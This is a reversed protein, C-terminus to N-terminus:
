LNAIAQVLARIKNQIIRTNKPGMRLMQKHVGTLAELNKDAYQYKVSKRVLEIRKELVPAALIEAGAKQFLNELDYEGPYSFEDFVQQLLPNLLRYVKIAQQVDIGEIATAMSDYRRYSTESLYLGQNDKEAAFAEALKFTKMHKYQRQGQAFDNAIVVMKRILQDTQLWQTLGSSLATVQERFLDDSHELVPLSAQNELQPEISVRPEEEPETSPEPSKSAPSESPKASEPILPLSVEPLALEQTKVGEELQPLQPNFYLWAAAGAVMLLVLLAILTGKSSKKEYLDYRSM